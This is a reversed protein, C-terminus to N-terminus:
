FMPYIILVFLKLFLYDSLLVSYDILMLFHDILFILFVFHSLLFHVKLPFFYDHM